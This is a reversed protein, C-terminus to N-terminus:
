NGMMGDPYIITLDRNAKRARRITAWTGSRLEEDFGGPTAIMRECSDVIAQNRIMYDEEDSMVSWDECWARKSANRPPHQIIDFGKKQAISDFQADAGICDGHHAYLVAPMNEMLLEVVEIQADTMGKQTGTFGVHESIDM